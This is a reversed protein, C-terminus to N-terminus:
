EEEPVSGWERIGVHCARADTVVERDLVVARELEDCQLRLVDDVRHVAGAVGDCGNEHGFQLALILAQDPQDGRRAVHENRNRAAALELRRHAMARRQQADLRRIHVLSPLRYVQPIHNLPRTPRSRSDSPPSTHSSGQQTCLISNNKSWHLRCRSYRSM